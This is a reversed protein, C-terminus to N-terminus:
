AKPLKIVRWAIADTRFINMEVNRNGHRDLVVSLYIEDPGLTLLPDPETNWEDTMERGVGESCFARICYLRFHM